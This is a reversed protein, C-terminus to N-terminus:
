QLTSLYEQWVENAYFPSRISILIDDKVYILSQINTEAAYGFYVTDAGVKFTETANFAETAQKLDFVEPKEQQTIQTPKNGPVVTDVYTYAPERDPPSIDVIEFDAQSLGRPYFVGFDLKDVVELEPPAAVSSDGGDNVGLTNRTGDDGGAINLGLIAVLLGATVAIAKKKNDLIYTRVKNYLKKTNDQAKESVSQIENKARQTKLKNLKEKTQKYEKQLNEDQKKIRKQEEWIDFLGDEKSKSSTRERILKSFDKKNSM